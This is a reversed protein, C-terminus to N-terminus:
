IGLSMCIVGADETHDCNDIGIPRHWCDQLKTEKGSCAVDDLLIPGTGSGFGQVPYM